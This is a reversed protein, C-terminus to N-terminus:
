LSGWVELRLTLTHTPTDGKGRLLLLISPFLRQGGPDLAYALHAGQNPRQWHDWGGVKSGPWDSVWSALNVDKILFFFPKNLYLKFVMGNVWKFHVVWYTKQINSLKKFFQPLIYPFWHQINIPLVSTSSSAGISKGGSAVFQSVQFSGSVPFSQLHSFFPIVSSSITQYCWQSLPCSNSYVGPTLLPCPPRAHQLGHPKLSNSM